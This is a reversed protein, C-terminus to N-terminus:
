PADLDVALVAGDVWLVTLHRDLRAAHMAEADM